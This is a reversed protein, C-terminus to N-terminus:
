KKNFTFLNTMKDLMSYRRQGFSSSAGNGIARLNRCADLGPKGNPTRVDYGESLAWGVIKRDCPGHGHDLLEM